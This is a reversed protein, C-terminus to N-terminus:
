KGPKNFKDSLQRDGKGEKEIKYVPVDLDNRLFPNNMIKPFMDYEIMIRSDERECKPSTEENSKFRKLVDSVCHPDQGSRKEISHFAAMLDQFDYNRAEIFGRLNAGSDKNKPKILVSFNEYGYGPSDQLMAQSDIVVTKNRASRRRGHGPNRNM